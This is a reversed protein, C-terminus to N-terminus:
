SPMPPGGEVVGHIKAILQIFSVVVPIATIAVSWEALKRGTRYKRRGVIECICVVFIVLAFKFVALGPVGWARVVRDALTNVEYGGFVLIACTLMIDLASLLMYWVYVNPYLVARSWVSEAAPQTQNPAGQYPLDDRRADREEDTM